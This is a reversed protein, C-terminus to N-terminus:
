IKTLAERHKRRINCCYLTLTIICEDKFIQDLEETSEPYFNVGNKSTANALSFYDRTSVTNLLTFM